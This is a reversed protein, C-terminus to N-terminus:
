ATRAPITLWIVGERTAADATIEVYLYYNGGESLAVTFSGNFVGRDDPDNQTETAGSVATSTGDGECQYLTVTCASTGTLLELDKLVAASWIILNDSDQVAAGTSVYVAM